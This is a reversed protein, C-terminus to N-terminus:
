LVDPESSRLSVEVGLGRGLKRLDQELRAASARAPLEVELLLLYLPPRAAKRTPSTRHTSLDTINVRARALLGSVRYVIGPRDAGYVSILYPRGRGSPRIEGGTLPKLHVALGMRRSLPQLARALSAQSLGAGASFVLMIAFEGGLRTMASDELNCGLGFLAKTVHAVIGPRDKGLATLIWTRPLPRPALPSLHFPRSFRSM